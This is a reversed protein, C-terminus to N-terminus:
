GTGERIFMAGGSDGTSLTAENEGADRDFTAYLTDTPFGLSAPVVASVVNEGWRLRGDSIGL